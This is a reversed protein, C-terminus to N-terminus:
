YKITSCDDIKAHLHPQISDISRTFISSIENLRGRRARKFNKLMKDLQIDNPYREKICDSDLFNDSNQLYGHNLWQIDKIWTKYLQYRILMLCM